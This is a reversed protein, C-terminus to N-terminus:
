NSKLGVAKALKAQREDFTWFREAKLELAAAVHLTDLTRNGIVATHARALDVSVEFTLEPQPVARWLGARRDREFEFYIQAATGSSIRGRYINQEIAHALEVSHLPTLFLGTSARFLRDAGRSHADALYISVLFSTDAYTIL